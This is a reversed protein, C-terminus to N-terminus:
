PAEKGGAEEEWRIHIQSVGSVSGPGCPIWPAQSSTKNETSPMDVDKTYAWHSTGPLYLVLVM